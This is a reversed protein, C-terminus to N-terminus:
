ETIEDTIKAYVYPNKGKYPPIYIEESTKVEVKIGWVNLTDAVGGRMTIANNLTKKDGIACIEFPASSRVNNVSLTPGACRIESIATLRQGNISIAEAGAARLENVVRLLDDDHIIYTNPNEAKNAVKESDHLIVKVGEGELATMCAQTKLDSIFDASDINSIKEATQLKLKLEDRESEVKLIQASMDALLKQPLSFTLMQWIQAVILFGM